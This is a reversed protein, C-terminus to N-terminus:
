MTNYAKFKRFRMRYTHQGILLKNSTAVCPTPVREILVRQRLEVLRAQMFLADIQIISHNNM